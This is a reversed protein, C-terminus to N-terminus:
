GANQEGERQNRASAGRESPKFLYARLEISVELVNEGPKGSEAQRPNMSVTRAEVIKPFRQLAKIFNMVSRYTGRGKVEINMEEYPKRKQSSDGDKQATPAIQKIVPRVGLVEIGNERGTAELEFLLTPIYAFQPVSKELHSLKTSTEVLKTESDKLQRRLKDEDQVLKQLSEVEEAQATMSRYQWFSVGSGLVFTVAALIMFIRPNTQQKM